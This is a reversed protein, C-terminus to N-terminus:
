SLLFSSSYFFSIFSLLGVVLIPSFSSTLITSGNPANKLKASVQPRSSSRSSGTNGQSGSGGGNNQHLHAVDAHVLRDGGVDTEEPSKSYEFRIFENDADEQENDDRERNYRNSSKFHQQQQQKQNNNYITVIPEQHNSKIKISFRMNYKSCLGGSMYNLGQRKGSSTSIFFYEKGEEFELANPVPSFKVFYITFKIPNAPNLSVSERKNNDNNNNNFNVPKDCKLIPMTAENNPNIICNDFEHKTGVKFIVSYEAEEKEEEERKENEKETSSSLISSLSSSSSYSSKQTFPSSSPCVLDINDGIRGTLRLYYNSGSNTADKFLKNTSSWELSPLKAVVGPGNKEQNQQQQQQQHNDYYSRQPYKRYFHPKAEVVGLTVVVVVLLMLTQLSCIQTKM